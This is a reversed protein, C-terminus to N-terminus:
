QGQFHLEVDRLRPQSRAVVWPWGRQQQDEAYYRLISLSEDRNWESAPAQSRASISEPTYGAFPDGVLPPTGAKATKDAIAKALAGTALDHWRDYGARLLDMDIKGPARQVPMARQLLTACAGAFAACLGGAHGKAEAASDAQNFAVPLHEVEAFLFQIANRTAPKSAFQWLERGGIRIQGPLFHAAQHPGAPQGTHTMTQSSSFNQVAAATCEVAAALSVGSQRLLALYGLVQVVRINRALNHDFAQQRFNSNRDITGQFKGLAALDQDSVSKRDM